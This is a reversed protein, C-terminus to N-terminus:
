IQPMRHIIDQCWQPLDPNIAYWMWTGRRECTVLGAKKLHSLHRSITPQPQQLHETLHCVCLMDQERLQLMLKLRTPDSLAKFFTVSSVM